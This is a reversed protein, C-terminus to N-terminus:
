SRLAPAQPQSALSVADRARVARGRSTAERSKWARWLSIPVGVLAAVTAGGRFCTAGIRHNGDWTHGQQGDDFIVVRERIPEDLMDDFREPDGDEAWMRREAEFWDADVADALRAIPYADVRLWHLSWPDAHGPEGPGYQDSWFGASHAEEPTADEAPSGAFDFLAAAPSM